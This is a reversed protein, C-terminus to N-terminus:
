IGFCYRWALVMDKWINKLEAMLLRVARYETNQGSIRDYIIGRGQGLFVLIDRIKRICRKREGKM